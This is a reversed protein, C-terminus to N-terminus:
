KGFLMIIRVGDYSQRFGLASSLCVSVNMHTSVFGFLRDLNGKQDKSLATLDIDDLIVLTKEEGDFETPNPIEAIIETNDLDDYEKTFEPSCHVVIVKEFPPNARILMNKIMNTKGCNPIGCYLSRWPHPLNLLDRHPTWKEHFGKDACPIALITKPLRHKKKPM